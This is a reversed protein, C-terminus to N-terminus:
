KSREKFVEVIGKDAYIKVRDGTEIVQCPDQDSVIVTPVKTAIVANAVVTDLRKNIIALPGNGAVHTRYFVSGGATSGKGFPYVLIKGKISEGVLEPDAQGRGLIGTGPDIGSWFSLAQKMVLATGEVEGGVVCRGHLVIKRREAM